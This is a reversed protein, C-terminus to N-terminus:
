EAIIMNMCVYITVIYGNNCVAMPDQAEFWNIWDVMIPKKPELQEGRLNKEKNTGQM